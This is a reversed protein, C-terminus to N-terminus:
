RLRHEEPVLYSGLREHQTVPYPFRCHGTFRNMQSGAHAIDEINIMDPTPNLIDFM